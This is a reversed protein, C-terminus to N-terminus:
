LNDNFVATSLLLSQCSFVHCGVKGVEMVHRVIYKVWFLRSFHMPLVIIVSYQVKM